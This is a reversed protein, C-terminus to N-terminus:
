FRFEQIAWRKGEKVLVFTAPTKESNLARVTGTFTAINNEIKRSLFESTYNQRVVNNKEVAEQFSQITFKQKAGTSLYSYAKAYDGRSIAELQAHVVRGPELTRGWFWWVPGGIILALILLKKM